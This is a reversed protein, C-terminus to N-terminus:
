ELTQLQDAIAGFQKLYAEASDVQGSELHSKLLELEALMKRLLAITSAGGLNPGFDRTGAVVLWAGDKLTLTVNFTEGLASNIAVTATNSDITSKTPALSDLMPALMDRMTKVDLMNQAMQIGIADPGTFTKGAVSNVSALAVRLQVAMDLFECIAPATTCDSASKAQTVGSPDGVMALSMGKIFRIAAAAPAGDAADGSPVPQSPAPAPTVVVTEAVAIPKGDLLDQMSGLRARIAEATVGEGLQDAIGVAAQAATRATEMADDRRTALSRAQDRLAATDDMDGQSALRDLLFANRNLSMFRSVSTTLASQRAALELARDAMANSGTQRAARKANSAAADFHGMAATAKDHLVGTEATALASADTLLDRRLTQIRNQMADVQGSRASIFGRLDASETEIAEITSTDGDVVLQLQRQQDKLAAISMGLLELRTELPALSALSAGAHEIDPISSTNGTQLALARQEHSIYRSEAIARADQDRQLSLKDIEQQLTDIQMKGQRRQANRDDIGRELADAGLQRPTFPVNEAFSQLRQLSLLRAEIRGGLLAVERRAVRSQTLSATGLILEAKASLASRVGELSGSQVDISRLTNLVRQAGQAATDSDPSLMSLEIAANNIAQAADAHQRAADDTCGGLSVCGLTTVGVLVISGIRM